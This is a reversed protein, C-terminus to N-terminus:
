VPDSEPNHDARSESATTPTQDYGRTYFQYEDKNAEELKRQLHLAVPRDEPGLSRLMDIVALQGSYACHGQLAEKLTGLEWGKIELIYLTEYGIPDYRWNLYKAVTRLCELHKSRFIIIPEIAGNPHEITSVFGCADFVGVLYARIEPDM